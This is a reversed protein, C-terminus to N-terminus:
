ENGEAKRLEQIDLYRYHQGCLVCYDMEKLILTENERGILLLGEECKPCVSKFFGGGYRELDKHDVEIVPENINISGLKDGNSEFLEISNKFIKTLQPSLGFRKEGEDISKNFDGDKHRLTASKWDCLLEILDVINMDEIGKQFFEPHHRNHAYHHDLAVKMDKLFDKYEPSNYTSEKLKPTMEIFIDKEPPMFKSHDHLVGRAKLRTSILNIFRRVNDVHEQTEKLFFEEKKDM